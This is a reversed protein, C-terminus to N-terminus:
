RQRQRYMQEKLRRSVIGASGRELERNEFWRRKEEQSAFHTPVMWIEVEPPYKQAAGSVSDVAVGAAAVVGFPPVLLLASNGATAPAVFEGVVESARHYGEKSCIITLPADGKLLKVSAPTNNVYWQRGKNDTLTCSAGEVGPTNVFISQERGSIVTACGGLCFVCVILILKSM